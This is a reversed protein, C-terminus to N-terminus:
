GGNGHDASEESSRTGLLRAVGIAAGLGLAVAVLGEPVPGYHGLNLGGRDEPDHLQQVYAAIDRADDDSFAEPGFRPMEGPATRMAEVVEVPDSSTLAPVKVNNALIGGSGVSQHCAACNLEYLAQGNSISAAATDVEPIQPGNVFGSVYALVDAIEQADYKPAPRRSEQPELPMRRTRLQFDVSALGVMSIDPGRYTGRGDSGHCVACDTGYLRAGREADGQPREGQAASARWGGLVAIAALALAAIWKRV